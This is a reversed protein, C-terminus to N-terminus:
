RVSTLANFDVARQALEYYPGIDKLTIIPCELPNAYPVEEGKLAAVLLEVAKYNEEYIPQGVLGYVWGSKVLDLNEVTYDMSIITIDGPQKGRDQAAKAWTTPGAGTTSFAGVVDPNATLIATAKAIAQPPDYGEEQPELVKVKPCAAKLADSFSTAALDETSTHAGQTIAVTGKCKIQKGMAEGAAKGYAAVDASVWAKLGPLTGEDMIFHWNVVPIGADIAKQTDAYFATDYISSTIGSTNNPSITDMMAVLGAIDNGEVSMFKCSLDYDVCADWFGLEMIKVTPHSVNTGVFVFPKGNQLEKLTKDKPTETPPTTIAGVKTTLEAVQTKIGSVETHVFYVGVALLIVCLAVVVAFIPYSKANM